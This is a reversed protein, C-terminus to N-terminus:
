VRRWAFALTEYPFTVEARGALSPEAAIVARVEAAVRDRREASLAAIFSVSLIREVIVAEPAGTHGYAYHRETTAELGEAPLLRRWAGSHFRPADGEHPSMIATVAAVWAVREDRVNWVLGLRGGPKLVRRIEALAAEDAFWHFAQACVVVDVSADALPMHQATGDLCAVQPFDAAFQARMEAVPEVAVVEAGTAILRPTFKGTGAGLDVAVCGKGLGLDDRLFGDIEVPYDPRGRGYTAAATAFGQSAAPHIESM